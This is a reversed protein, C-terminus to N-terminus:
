QPALSRTLMEACGKALSISVTAVVLSVAEAVEMGERVARQKALHRLFFGARPGSGGTTEFCVPRYVSAHAFLVVSLCLGWFQPRLAIVPPLPPM